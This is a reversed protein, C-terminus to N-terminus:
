REGLEAASHGLVHEDQRRVVQREASEMRPDILKRQMVVVAEGLDLRRARRRLARDVENGDEEAPREVRVLEAEGDALRERMQAIEFADPTQRAAVPGIPDLDVRADSVRERKRSLTLTLAPASM